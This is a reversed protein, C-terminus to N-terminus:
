EHLAWLKWTKDDSVTALIQKRPHLAFRYFIFVYALKQPSLLERNISTQSLIGSAINKLDLNTLGLFKM